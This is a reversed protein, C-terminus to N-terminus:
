GAPMEDYRVEAALMDRLLALAKSLRSKITGEPIELVEAVQRLSLGELSHLAIVERYLEPLRDTASRVSQCM